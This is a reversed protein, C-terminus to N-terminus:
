FLSTQDTEDKDKKKPPKAVPRKKNADVITPKEEPEEDKEVVPVELPLTEVVEEEIVEVKEVAPAEYPLSDLLNVTRIKDVTLQNGLSKIGKVAIFAELDVELKELSRKSFIVEAVPRFDTAVIELQSKPHESIFLEEKNPNDIMFRKVFYREKKGDFYIASIPKNPIWKELVIMDQDFHTSLDPAITKVMGKQNIILLRDSATFEGLLEGRADVNLRQVTDDFWIKRPKLTSIGKEKLEIKKVAYKTLRNGKSSRGKILLESFDVDWKLKKINGVARLYITVIEAEGNPNATFYLVTSGKNGATLDYEKDRTISTVHFRKMLTPGGRGDRYIMNYVTRKDNKKFVAIHIIDKGVFTKSAVKTIMMAGNKRFVIVDDIDACDAVYEDRRLSTGVFGEERNVYLKTNRMVVKSAVIDDFARLETKREKGKGYKTKLNKFYDIAFEILHELHHKVSAIKEELSEIFQKAKDIDFKSIKKIRIETLKIIDEETVERKLHKTHPKLGDDIAKLVGEWTDVEEIDRYIRNEIFIRELSAFHWQAELEDLQIELERKLLDVTNQTSIKLVDSVGLFVPKNNEIVCCLPSISTECNTFAYLADISKDPSVGAPLHILIEVTAATNDEIRKIKIKGKDNAKLISDILSATTTSYPIETVVLTKKDLQSIKARVRIKGGRKGDNYNSADAIGGNLFDPVIKFSRGKLIKISADILENFNHPLIKTSLGVAIGEAGQTLLMPFKVPLDIPEKRRGDYSLKWETTKPNFVVDLAFKSLRAEIYRSAAARDGTLTNGWNGQMDILLEKQGMQVMADAISADGHPHYQMTHGVINAVKNYRGDDLDKMAQMIRRQVPKFGDGIAPVARELIVYSAYDLFWEKYMGTVRTLTEQSEDQHTLEEENQPDNPEEQM